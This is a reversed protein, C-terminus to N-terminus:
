LITESCTENCLIVFNKQLVFSYFPDSPPSNVLSYVGRPMIGLLLYISFIVLIFVQFM